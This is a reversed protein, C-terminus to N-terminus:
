KRPRQLSRTILSEQRVNAGGGRMFLIIGVIATVGIGVALVAKRSFFSAHPLATATQTPKTEPVAAGTDQATRAHVQLVAGGQPSNTSSANPNLRAGSAAEARATENTKQLASSSGVQNSNAAEQQNTGETSVVTAAPHSKKGTFVLAGPTNTDVVAASTRVVVPPAASAPASAAPPMNTKTMALLREPWPPVDLQWPAPTVAQGVFEGRSARILTVFPMRAKEQEARWTKFGYNIKSDFITGSIESEGTSILILTLRDSSEAVKSAISIVQRFDAGKELKQQRLFSAAAAAIESSSGPTWTALPFKGASLSDNYTWVGLTDGSQMQGHLGSGILNSVTTISNAARRSMARSAEFVLLFRQAQPQHPRPPANTSAKADAAGCAISTLLIMASVIVRSASKFIMGAIM